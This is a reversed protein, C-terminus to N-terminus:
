IAILSLSWAVFGVRSLCRVGACGILCLARFAINCWGWLFGGFGPLVWGFWEGLFWVIGGFVGVVGALVWALLGVWCLCSVVVGVCGFM